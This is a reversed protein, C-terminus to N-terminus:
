AYDASQWRDPRITFLIPQYGRTEVNAEAMARAADDPMYRRAIAFLQNASPPSDTKILSGSITVFKYPPEERQVTLTVVGARQILKVKSAGVGTFFTVNGGPEYGYWIPTSVPPGNARAVSLVAVHREALFAQQEHDTLPRPM